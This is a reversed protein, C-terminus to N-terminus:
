SELEEHLRLRVREEWELAASEPTLAKRGLCHALEHGLIAAWFVRGSPPVFDLRGEAYYRRQNGLDAAVASPWVRVRCYTGAGTPDVYPVLAADALHGDAPAPTSAGAVEIRLIVLRRTLPKWVDIRKLDRIATRIAARGPGRAAIDLRPEPLRTPPRHAVQEPEFPSPSRAVPESGPSCAVAVAIAIAASAVRARM